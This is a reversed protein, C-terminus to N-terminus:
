VVRICYFGMTYNGRVRDAAECKDIYKQADENTTYTGLDAKGTLSDEVRYLPLTGDKSTAEREVLDNLYDFVRVSKTQSRIMVFRRFREKDEQTPCAMRYYIREKPERPTKKNDM